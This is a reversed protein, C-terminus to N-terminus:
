KCTNQQKTYTVTYNYTTKGKTISKSYEDIFDDRQEHAEWEEKFAFVQGFFPKPENEKIMYVNSIQIDYNSVITGNSGNGASGTERKNFWVAYKCKATKPQTATPSATQTQVVPKPRNAEEIAAVERNTQDVRSQMRANFAAMERKNNEIGTALTEGMKLWFNLRREAREDRKREAEEKAIQILEKDFGEPLKYDEDEWLWIPIGAVVIAIGKGDPTFEVSTPNAPFPIAKILTGDISWIKIGDSMVGKMKKVPSEGTASVIVKDGNELKRMFVKGYPMNGATVIKKGDRSFAAVHASQHPLEKVLVGNTDWIGVNDQDNPFIILKDDTSFNIFSHTNYMGGQDFDGKGEVWQSKVKITRLELGNFDVLRITNYNVLAFFNERNAFRITKTGSSIKQRGLQSGIKNFIYIYDKYSTYNVVVAAQGNPSILEMTYNGMEGALLFNDFKKKSDPNILTTIPSAAQDYIRTGSIYSGDTAVTQWNYKGHFKSTNTFLYKKSLSLDANWFCTYKNGEIFLDTIISKGDDSYTLFNDAGFPVWDEYDVKKGDAYVISSVKSKSISKITGSPDNYLKYKIDGYTIEVINVELTNVDRTIIADPLLNIKEGTAYEIEEVETKAITLPQADPDDMLTYKIQSDTVELIKVDLVGGGKKYILDILMDETEGSAYEIRALNRKPISYTPGGPNAAKKYKVDTPTIEIVQGAIPTGDKKILRDTKPAASQADITTDQKTQANAEQAHANQVAVSLLIFLLPQIFNKM